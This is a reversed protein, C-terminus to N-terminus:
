DENLVDEITAHANLNISRKTPTGRLHEIVKWANTTAIQENDSMILNNIRKTAKTRMSELSKQIKQQVDSRKLMRQAKVAAYNPRDALQPEVAIMAQKPSGTQVVLEAFTEAHKEKIQAKSTRPM